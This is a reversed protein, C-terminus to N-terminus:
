LRIAFAGHRGSVGDKRESPSSVIMRVYRVVAWIASVRLTSAARLLSFACPLEWISIRRM